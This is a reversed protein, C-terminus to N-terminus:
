SRNHLEAIERRAETDIDLVSLRGLALAALFAIVVGLGTFFGIQEAVKTLTAGFPKGATFGSGACAHGIITGLAFWTGSIAALWAGFIAVPRSVSVLAILGGVLAGAGAAGGALALGVQLVLRHRPHLCLPLVPRCLGDARELRRAGGPYQWTADTLRQIRANDASRVAPSM